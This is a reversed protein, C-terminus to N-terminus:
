SNIRGVDHDTIKPIVPLSSKSFVERENIRDYIEWDWEYSCGTRQKIYKERDSNKPFLIQSITPREPKQAMVVEYRAKHQDIDYFNLIENKYDRSFYSYKSKLFYDYDEQREKRVNYVHMMYNQDDDISYSYNFNKDQERTEEDFIVWGSNTISNIDFLCLIKNNVDPHDIDAIYTNYIGNDRWWEWKQGLMPLIFLTTKNYSKKM